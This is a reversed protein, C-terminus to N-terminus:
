ARTKRILDAFQQASQRVTRQFSKYDVELLGFRPEFGHHWEFNDLLSWYLYGIVQVPIALARQVQQIHSEIFEWRLHDDEECTGNETILIPKQYKKLWCLIEYIGEPYSDWGMTNVHQVHHHVTNCKGGLLGFSSTRDNSIIDRFYYNVGIFDIEKKIKDLLYMNFMKHRLYVGFHCFANNSKPCVQFPILNKAISVQPQPWGRSKYIEHIKHYALRHAKIFHRIVRMCKTISKEGPPWIGTLYSYYAFVGPENVTIWYRVNKGLMGVTKEVYRSFLLPSQTNLWGAQDFFWKPNTFHHLTVIPEINKAKLSLIVEQYYRVADNDFQGEHPEVRSWEVSFRHANHNLQQALQFDQDFQQRHNVAKASSTKTKGQQEWFWWDNNTNAGEVQHSSTAAGWLFGKPFM